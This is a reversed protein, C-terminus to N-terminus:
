RCESCEEVRTQGRKLLGKNVSGRRGCACTVLKSGTFAPETRLRPPVGTTLESPKTRKKMRARRKAEKTEENVRDLCARCAQEGNRRHREYGAKTGKAPKGKNPGVSIPPDCILQGELAQTTM